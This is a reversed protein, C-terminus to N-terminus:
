QGLIKYLFYVIILGAVALLLGNRRKKRLFLLLILGSLSIVAMCIAAIDIVWSWTKGTDRGKHLDNMFGIFGTRTQLLEYDGTERIIFVDAAYGPGKFSFSVQSDDIRFDNVAGKVQYQNRFFETINLKAVLNTDTVNVWGMNVKGTDRTVITKGSFFDAHNLTLGTVSFFLVIVFSLMSLYIHLWRSIKAAQKKTKTAKSKVPSSTEGEM